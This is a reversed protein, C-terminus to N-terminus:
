VIYRAINYQLHEVVSPVHEATERRVRPVDRRVIVARALRENMSYVKYQMSYVIAPADRRLLVARALQVDFYLSLKAM